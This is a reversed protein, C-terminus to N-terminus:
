DQVPQDALPTNRSWWRCETFGVVIIMIFGVLV